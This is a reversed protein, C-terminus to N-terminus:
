QKVGKAKIYIKIRKVIYFQQIPIVVMEEIIQSFIIKDITNIELQTTEIKQRSDVNESFSDCVSKSSNLGVLIIICQPLFKLLHQYSNGFCDDGTSTM